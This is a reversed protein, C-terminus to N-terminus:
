AVTAAKRRRVMGLGALALGAGGMAFTSPEPVTFIPASSGLVQGVYILPFFGPQNGSGALYNENTTFNDFINLGTAAVNGFNFSTQAPGFLTLDNDPIPVGPAYIAAFESFTGYFGVTTANNRVRIYIGGQEGEADPNPPLLAVTGNLKQTPSLMYVSTIGPLPVNLPTPDAIHNVPDILNYTGLRMNGTDPDYFAGFTPAAKASSGLTALALFAVVVVSKIIRTVM